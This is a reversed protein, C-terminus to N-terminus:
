LSKEIKETSNKFTDRTSALIVLKIADAVTGIQEATAEKKINNFSRKRFVYEGKDNEYQVEISLGVKELISNYAM